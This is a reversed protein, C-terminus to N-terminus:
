NQIATGANVRDEIKKLISSEAEADPGVDAWYVDAAMGPQRWGSETSMKDAGLGERGVLQQQAQAGSERELEAAVRVEIGGAERTVFCRVTRRYYQVEGGSILAGLRRDKGTRPVMKPKTEIRGQVFDAKAIVYEKELVQQAAQFAAQYDTTGLRVTQGNDAPAECGALLCAAAMVGIIMKGLNEM